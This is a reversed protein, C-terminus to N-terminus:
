QRPEQAKSKAARLEEIAKRGRDVRNLFDQRAEEPTMNARRAALEVRLAHIEDVGFVTKEM